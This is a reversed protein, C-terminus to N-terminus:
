SLPLLGAALATDVPPRPHGLWRAEQADTLSNLFNRIAEKLPADSEPALLNASRIDVDKDIIFHAQVVHRAGLSHLIPRLAYDIALVHALSGGTAIPLVVKGSLGFQPLVDIALKLLGSYAAKFIPTAVVVGHAGEVEDLLRRVSPNACDANMLAEADIDRVRLHTFGVGAEGIQRLAYDAVAATKSQPSPSGSIALVQKGM